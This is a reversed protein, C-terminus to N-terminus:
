YRIMYLSVCNTTSFQIFIQLVVISILICAELSLQLHDYLPGYTSFTLSSQQYITYFIISLSRSSQISLHISCYYLSNYLNQISVHISMDYFMIYSSQISLYVSLEIYLIQVNSYLITYAFTCLAIYFLHHLFRYLLHLSDDRTAAALGPNGASIQGGPSLISFFMLFLTFVLSTAVSYWLCM